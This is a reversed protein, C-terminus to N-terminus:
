DMEGDYVDGDAAEGPTVHEGCWDNSHVPPWLALVNMAPRGAMDQGVMGYPTPPNRKCNGPQSKGLTEGTVPTPQYFVCTACSLTPTIVNIQKGNM